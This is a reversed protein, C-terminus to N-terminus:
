WTPHQGPLQQPIEKQTKVGRRGDGRGGPVKGDDKVLISQAPLMRPLLGVATQQHVGFGSASRRKWGM